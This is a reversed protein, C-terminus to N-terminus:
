TCRSVRKECCAAAKCAEGKVSELEALLGNVQSEIMAKIEDGKKKIETELQKTLDMFDRNRKGLEVIQKRVDSIRSAVSKSTTDVENALRDAAESIVQRKHEDHEVASCVLCINKKCNICYLKVQEDSHKACYTHRAKNINTEMDRGLLVVNQPGGKLKLHPVGCRECLKRNCYTCYVTAQPVGTDDRTDEEACTECRPVGAMMVDSTTLRADVLSQIAFNNSLETLGNTPIIFKQRCVPCLAEDGPLTDRCHGELCKLCFTHLCPLSKPKEFLEMCIPCTVIDSVLDRSAAM